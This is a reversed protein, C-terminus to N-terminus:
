KNNNNYIYIINYYEDFIQKREVMNLGGERLKKKEAVQVAARSLFVPHLISGIAEEPYAVDRSLRPDNLVDHRAFDFEVSEVSEVDVDGVAVREFVLSFAACHWALIIKSFHIFTDTEPLPASKVKVNGPLRNPFVFVFYFDHKTHIFLSVRLIACTHKRRGEAEDDDDEEDSGAGEGHM